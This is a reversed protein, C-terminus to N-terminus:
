RRQRKIAALKERTKGALPGSPDIELAAEYHQKAAKLDGAAAELSGLLYLATTDRPALDLAQELSQRAAAADGAANQALALESLLAPTPKGDGAQIASGLARVAEDPQKARRLGNGIASLAPRNGQALTLGTRLEGLAREAAGHALLFLGFNARLLPDRPTLEIARTYAALADDNRGVDELALALNAQASALQPDAQLARELENIASELQGRERLLLGLNNHAEAFYPDVELARRYAGEAQMNEDLAEHALGLGLWARADTEDGALAEEFKDRAGQADGRALREEAERVLPSRPKGREVASETIDPAAASPPKASACAFLGACAIMVLSPSKSVVQKLRM